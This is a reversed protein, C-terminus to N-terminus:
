RPRMIELKEGDTRVIVAGDRDTRLVRVGARAYREPVSPHPFGFTNDRGCSIVAIEPRVADIFSVTSSTHGGHHPVMLVDATLDHGSAVLREEAPESIDAPLLISRRGLTIKMVLGNNNHDSPAFFLSEGSPSQKPNLITISTGGVLREPIGAGVVRHPIRQGGIIKWLSRCSENESGEGNSWFEGVEFNEALFPLGGAHDQDPHTLVLIDIRKIRQRWLYPGVVYRGTDFGRDYFGGGDVVMTTGGPFRILTSSGQGVDLFTVHLDQDTATSLNAWVAHAVFFLAIMGLCLALVAKERYRYRERLKEILSSPRVATEKEDGTSRWRNIFRVGALIGLYYLVMELLTPTTVPLSALPFSSLFEIISLVTGIFFSAITALFSAVPAFPAALILAMGLPLVAFGIVPIVFLNSILSITSIRNFYFAILPATGVVAAFSVVIFIAVSHIRRRVASEGVAQPILSNLAPTILIIAAVATFSLQFSVDFLSPPSFILILFAAFALINLLDRGRGALLAVLYCLIMIAARVTSIRLGAIFAYGIVPIVALLASVKFINLRLLLYESSKMLATAIFLSIFAIIGVHLGSIALIHSVGTRNFNGIIDEPISEKEGLILAQLVDGAPSPVAGRIRKRILSRYTEIETRLSNGANERIIVIDSPRSVYGRFRIGQYLLHKKYDFGGPNDFSRPEKLKTHVRIYNGYKFVNNSDKVSLLIKERVPLVTEKQVIRATDIVLITKDGRVRPPTCVVGEVTLRRGEDAHVTIDDRGSWPHLYLNINLIGLLFLSLLMCVRVGTRRGTAVLFLLTGLTALLVPLVVGGPIHVLNGATIGAILATLLSIVPRRM